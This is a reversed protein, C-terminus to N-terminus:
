LGNKFDVEFEEALLFYLSKTEDQSIKNFFSVIPLFDCFFHKFVDVLNPVLDGFFSTFYVRVDFIVELNLDDKEGIYLILLGIEIDLDFFKILPKVMSALVGKVQIL